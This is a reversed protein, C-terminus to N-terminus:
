FLDWGLNLNVELDLTNLKRVLVGIDVTDFAKRLDLFVSLFYQGMELSAYADQLYRM